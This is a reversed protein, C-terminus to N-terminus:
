TADFRIRQMHHRLQWLWFSNGAREEFSVSMKLTFALITHKQPKWDERKSAFGSWAM